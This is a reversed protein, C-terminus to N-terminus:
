RFQTTLVFVLPFHIFLTPKTIIATLHDLDLSMRPQWSYYLPAIVGNKKKSLGPKWIEPKEEDHEALSLM